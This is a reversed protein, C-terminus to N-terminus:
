RLLSRDSSKGLRAPRRRIHLRCLIGHSRQRAVLMVTMLLSFYLAICTM